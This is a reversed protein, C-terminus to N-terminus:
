GSRRWHPGPDPAPERRTAAAADHAAPRSAPEGAGGGGRPARRGGLDGVEDVGRLAGQLAEIRREGRLLAARGLRRVRQSRGHRTSTARRSASGGPSVM